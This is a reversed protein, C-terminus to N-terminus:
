VKPCFFLGRKRLTKKKAQKEEDTVDDIEVDFAPKEVSTM